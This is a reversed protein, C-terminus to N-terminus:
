ANLRRRMEAEADSAKASMQASLRLCFNQEEPVKSLAATRRGTERCAKCGVRPSGCGGNFTRGECKHCLPDLWSELTRGALTAICEARKAHAKRWAKVGALATPIPGIRMFGVREAEVVAWQGVAEKAATLSKLQSLILVRNTIWERASEREHAQYEAALELRRDDSISQDAIKRRLVSMATARMDAQRVALKQSSRVTDYESALRYLLMGLSNDHGAWGAAVVIDLDCRGEEVKSLKLHSSNTASSYREGLTPKEEIDSM